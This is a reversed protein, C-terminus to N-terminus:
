EPTHAAPPRFFLTTWALAVAQDLVERAGRASRWWREDIGASRAALVGVRVDSGFALRFMLRSRRAHAGQSFVDIARLELGSRRAWDRVAVASAFTRDTLAAPGPVASVKSAPLGKSTLYAAGREAANPYPESASWAQFPAGTILVREYGRDRFANLAQDFGDRDIWGEIVLVQAGVPANVALFPYLNRAAMVLMAALLSCLVLWGWLTPLWVSRRRALIALLKVVFAL